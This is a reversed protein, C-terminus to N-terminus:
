SQKKNADPSDFQIKTEADFKRYGSFVITGTPDIEFLVMM